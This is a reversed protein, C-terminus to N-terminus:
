SAQPPPPCAKVMETVIRAFDELGTSPIIIADRRGNAEEVIRLFTGRDNQKLSFAFAKREVEIRESKLTDERVPPKKVYSNQQSPRPSWRGYPSPRENTIM